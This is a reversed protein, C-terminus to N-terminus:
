PAAPATPDITVSSARSGIRQGIEVDVIDPDLGRIDPRSEPAADSRSVINKHDFAEHILERRGRHLIRDSKALSQKNVIGSRKRNQGQRPFLLTPIVVERV